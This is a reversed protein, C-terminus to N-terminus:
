EKNRPTNLTKTLQKVQEELTKIRSEFDAKKFNLLKNYASKQGIEEKGEPMVASSDNAMKKEVYVKLEQWYSSQAIWADFSISNYKRKGAGRTYKVLAHSMFPDYTETTYGPRNIEAYIAAYIRNLYQAIQGTSLGKNLCKKIFIRDDISFEKREGRAM